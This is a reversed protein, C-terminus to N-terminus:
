KKLWQDIPPELLKGRAKLEAETYEGKKIRRRVSQGCRSCYGNQGPESDRNCFQNLCRPRTAFTRERKM